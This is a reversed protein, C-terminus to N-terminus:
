ISVKDISFRCVFKAKESCKCDNWEGLNFRYYNEHGMMICKEKGFINNPERVGWNSYSIIENESNVFNNGNFVVGLWFLETSSYNKENMYNIFFEDEKEDRPYYLKGGSIECLYKAMEKEVAYNSFYFLSDKYALHPTLRSSYYTLFIFLFLAILSKM